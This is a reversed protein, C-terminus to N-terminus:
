FKAVPGDTQVELTVKDGEVKGKQIPFQQEGGGVSGTVEAGSQKLTFVVPQDRTEGGPRTMTVNGSWQGAVSADAASLALAAFLLYALKKMVPPRVRSLFTGPIGGHRLGPGRGVRFAILHPAANMRKKRTEGGQRPRWAKSKRM